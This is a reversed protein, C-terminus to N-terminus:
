GTSAPAPPTAWTHNKRARSWRFVEYLYRLNSGLHYLFRDLVWRAQSPFGQSPKTHEKIKKVLRRLGAVPVVTRARLANRGCNPIYQEQLFLVLKASSFLRISEGAGELLWQRSYNEIWFRISPRLEDRWRYMAEPRRGPFVLQTMACILGAIHRLEANALLTDVENWFSASHASFHMFHAIELFQCLRVRGTLVHQFAHLIQHLFIQADSLSPFVCGGIERLIAAGFIVPPLRLALPFRSEDWMSRHLEIVFPTRPDYQV